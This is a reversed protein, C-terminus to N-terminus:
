KNQEFCVAIQENGLQGQIYDEWQQLEADSVPNKCEYKVLVSSASDKDEELCIDVKIDSVNDLSGLNKELRGELYDYYRQAKSDEDVFDEASLIAGETGEKAAVDDNIFGIGVCGIVVVAAIGLVAVVKRM